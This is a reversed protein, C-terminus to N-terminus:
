KKKGNINKPRNRNRMSVPLFIKRQKAELAPHKTIDKGEGGQKNDNLTAVENWKYKERALQEM